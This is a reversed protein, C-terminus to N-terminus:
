KERKEMRVVPKETGEEEGSVSCSFLLCSNCYGTNLLSCCKTVMVYLILEASLTTLYAVLRSIIINKVALKLFVSLHGQHCM